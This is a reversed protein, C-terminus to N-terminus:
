SSGLPFCKNALKVTKKTPFDLFGLTKMKSLDKEFGSLKNMDYNLEKAIVVRNREKGDLLADFINRAKPKLMDKMDNQISENTLSSPDVTGIYKSGKETLILSKGAGFEVFGQKRLLGLNKTFGAETKTNGSFSQVDKRLPCEMGIAVLKAITQVIIHLKPKLQDLSSSGQYKASNKSASSATLKRAKNTSKGM